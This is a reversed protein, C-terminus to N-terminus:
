IGMMTKFKSSIKSANGKGGDIVGKIGWQTGKTQAINLLNLNKKVGKQILYTEMDKIIGSNISRNTQLDTVFFMCPIGQNNGSHLLGNYKKLKNDTFCELKFTRDTKGVYWPTYGPGNKLCFIYCGKKNQIKKAEEGSWFEDVHKVHVNEIFRSIGGRQLKNKTCPIEIAESVELIKISNQPM